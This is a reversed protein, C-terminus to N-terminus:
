NQMLVRENVALAILTSNNITTTYNLVTDEKNKATRKGLDSMILMEFIRLLPTKLNKFFKKTHTSSYIIQDM